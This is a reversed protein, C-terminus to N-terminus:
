KPPHHTFREWYRLIVALADEPSSGFTFIGEPHGHMVAIRERQLQNQQLLRRMSAAMAPTGYAVDPPTTAVRGLLHEWLGRHHIHVVGKILTESEYFVAHTMAESSAQIPGECHLTNKALDYDMVRSFHREDLVPIAGTATGSVVFLGPEELQASVNGYGIGSSYVGILGQEYLVQRVYLLSKM